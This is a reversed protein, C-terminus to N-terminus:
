TGKAQETQDAEPLSQTVRTQPGNVVSTQVVCEQLDQHQRTRRRTHDSAEENHQPLLTGSPRCYSETDENARVIRSGEADNECCEALQGPGEEERDHPARDHNEVIEESVEEPTLPQITRGHCSDTDGNKGQGQDDGFAWKSGPLHDASQHFAFDRGRM